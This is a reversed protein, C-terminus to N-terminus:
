RNSWEEDAKPKSDLAPLAGSCAKVILNPLTVDAKVLPAILAGEGYKAKLDEIKGFDLARQPCAEVCQPLKGEALRDYCADCKTMKKTIPNLVPADYPCAMKCAGCGICKKADILVLGGLEDHKKHAGTPCVMTCAPNTCHNCSVSVFYSYVDQHWAGTARDQKWGGGAVEHVKRFAVGPELGNKDKCAIVCTKCGTCRSADFYFGYQSM